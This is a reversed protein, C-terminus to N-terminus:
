EENKVSVEENQKSCQLDIAVLIGIFGWFPVAAKDTDLFNNMMGHVFYTILGLFISILLVKLERDKQKFYLRFSMIFIMVALAAFAILGLVGQESLPGLYESHANGGNGLNTSITTRDYSRQYPAYQFSYTGPGFGMYPKDLFMRWACSWRNLRERNSADSSINSISQIESSIDQSVEKNNKQLKMIIKTQFTFFLVVGFCIAAFIYKLKTRLLMLIFVAVAVVISVWSARSYSLGLAVLFLVSLGIAVVRSRYSRAVNIALGIIVPFFLALMAGYATHDNYFPSMAQHAAKEGFHGRAHNITTYIIVITFAAIYLWLFRYINKKDRFLYIGLFYFTVVGWSREVLFKFSVFPMTSTFSTIFMWGLGAIIILSVPHRFINKDIGQHITLLIFLLFIGFMIPETPMAAGISIQGLALGPISTLNISLPTFFVVTLMLMDLEFLAAYIVLLVLPLVDLLYNGKELILWIDAAIFIISFIYFLTINKRTIM